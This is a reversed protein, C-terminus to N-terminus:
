RFTCYGRKHHHCLQLRYVNNFNGTYYVLIVIIIMTDLIMIINNGSILEENSICRKESVLFSETSNYQYNCMARYYRSSNAMSYFYFDSYSRRRVTVVLLTENELAIHGLLSILVLIIISYMEM